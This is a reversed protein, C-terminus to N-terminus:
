IKIMHEYRVPLRSTSLATKLSPKNEFDILGWVIEQQTVEAVFKRQLCKALGKGKFAQDLFIELFYIADYGLFTDRMASILGIRQGNCHAIRLLGEKRSHEMDDKSNIPVFPQLSPFRKHYDLYGKEYWQFYSDDTPATLTIESEKAFPPIEKIKSATQALYVSRTSIDELKEKHYFRIYQPQFKTFKSTLKSHYLDLLQQTSFTTNSQLNIFPKERNSSLHRIGVIVQINKDLNLIFEEYDDPLADPINFFTYRKRKTKEQNLNNFDDKIEKEIAALMTKEELEFGLLNYSDLNTKAFAKFNIM